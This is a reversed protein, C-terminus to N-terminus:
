QTSIDTPATLATMSSTTPSWDTELSFHDGRIYTERWEAPRGQATARRELLFVPDKESIQLQQAIHRPALHTTIREHGSDITVGCTRDLEAYLGTSTFDRDLLPAALEAPLWSIDHALPEHDACRLRELVVLETDAPVGLHESVSANVTRGLRLVRNFQDVGQSTMTDFLSYLTGLSQRYRPTTVTTPRGRHSSILGEDRLVRLAERITHRSVGYEETLAIEGPFHGTFEGVSIRRRLDDCVQAWLPLPSSRDLCGASM